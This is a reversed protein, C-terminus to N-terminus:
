QRRRRRRAAGTAGALGTSLLILTAPEPTAVTFLTGTGPIRTVFGWGSFNIHVTPGTCFSDTNQCVNLTGSVFNETFFGGGQFHTSLFTPGPYLAVGAGHLVTDIFFHSSDSPDQDGSYGVIDSSIRVSGNGLLFTSGNALTVSDAKAAPACALALAFAAFLTLSLQRLPPM